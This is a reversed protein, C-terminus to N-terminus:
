IKLGNDRAKDALIKIRGHYLYGRRDFVVKNIKAKKAKKALLQGVLSAIEQPKLNKLNQSKLEKQHVSLLTKGSFDDILQASIYKNSRFVALRPRSSSGRIGKAIISKKKNRILLHRPIM